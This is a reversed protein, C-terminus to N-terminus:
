AQPDTQNKHIKIKDIKIKRSVVIQESQPKDVMLLSSSSPSSSSSASKNGFHGSKNGTFVLSYWV